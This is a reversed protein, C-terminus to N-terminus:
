QSVINLLSARTRVLHRFMSELALELGNINSEVEQLRTKDAEIDGMNHRTLTRIAGDVHKIDDLNEPKEECAVTGRHVLRSISSWRSQKTGSFPNLFPCLVSQFIKATLEDVETLARTVASSEPEQDSQSMVVANNKIQKTALSLRKATKRAKNRFNEYETLINSMGQDGKRRRLVSQLLQVYEKVQSILDRAIGCVDLQHVSSDLLANSCTVQRRLIQQTSAMDLLDTMCIYLDELKALGCSVSKFSSMNQTDFNKLRHLADEISCTTPHSRSPLSVSRVHCKSSGNASSSSSSSAM